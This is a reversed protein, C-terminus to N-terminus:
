GHYGLFVSFNKTLQTICIICVYDTIDNHKKKHWTQPKATMKRQDRQMFYAAM